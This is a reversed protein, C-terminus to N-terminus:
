AAFFDLQVKPLGSSPACEFVVAESIEPDSKATPKGLQFGLFLRRTVASAFTEPNALDDATFIEVPFGPAGSYDDIRRVRKAFVLVRPPNVAMVSQALRFHVRDSLLTVEGPCDHSAGSILMRAADPPIALAKAAAKIQKKAERLYPTKKADAWREPRWVQPDSLMHDLTKKPM